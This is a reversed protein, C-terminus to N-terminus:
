MVKLGYNKLFTNLLNKIEEYTDKKVSEFRISIKPETNSKRILFWGDKVKVRVGDIDILDYNKFFEKADSIIKEKNNVKIRYEESSIVKPIEDLLEDLNKGTREIVKLIIFLAFISDDYGLTRFYYHGSYEGGFDANEKKMRSKMFPGGVKELFVEGREKIKNIIVDSVKVDLVVRPKEYYLSILYSAKDGPIFKGKPSIFIGRDGDGDFCIGLDFSEDIKNKIHEINKEKSPDPNHSSFNPDIFCSTTEIEEETFIKDVFKSIPGNSCDVLIKHKKELKIKDRIIKVYEEIPDKTQYNEEIKLIENIKEKNNEIEKKWEEWIVEPLIEEKTVVKLGNYEPPNHSATVYLGIEFGKQYVLFGIIPAPVLSVFTPTKGSYNIGKILHKAYKESNKRHDHGIVIKNYKKGVIFGTISYIKENLEKEDIGRIDYAKFIRDLNDRDLVDGVSEKLTFM